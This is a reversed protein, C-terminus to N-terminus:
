RRDGLGIDVLDGLDKAIRVELEAAQAVSLPLIAVTAVMCPASVVSGVTATRVQQVSATKSSALSKKHTLSWAAVLCFIVLIKSATTSRVRMNKRQVPLTRTNFNAPIWSKVPIGHRMGRIRAARHEIPM